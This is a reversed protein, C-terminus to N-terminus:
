QLYAADSTRTGLSKPPRDLVCALSRLPLDTVGAASSQAIQPTTRITHRAPCSLVFAYRAVATPRGLEDGELPPTECLSQLAGRLTM